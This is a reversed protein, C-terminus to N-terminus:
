SVSGIAAVAWAALWARVEGLDRTFRESGHVDAVDSSTTVVYHAAPTDLSGTMGVVFRLDGVYVRAVQWGTDQVYQYDAPLLGAREFLRVTDEVAAYMTTLREAPTAADAAECSAAWQAAQTRADTLPDATPVEREVTWPSDVTPIYYAGDSVVHDGKRMQSVSTITHQTM